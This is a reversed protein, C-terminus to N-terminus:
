DVSLLIDSVAIEKSFLSIRDGPFYLNRSAYQGKKPDTFVEIRNAPLNIIWYVPIGVSAYIPLKTDHDFAYTTDSVEIVVLIEEPTPLDNFYKDERIQWIVIDPQLENWENIRVPNQISVLYENLFASVLLNTLNVVMGGHKSCIPSMNLIEGNILEVREDPLLVGIEGMRHFEESTILRKTIIANSMSM